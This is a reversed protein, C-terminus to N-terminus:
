VTHRRTKLSRAMTVIALLLLPLTGPASVPAFLRATSDFDASWAFFPTLGSFLESSGVDELLPLIRGLYYPNAAYVAQLISNQLEIASLDARMLGPLLLDHTWVGRGDEIRGYASKDESAAAFLAINSLKDLDGVDTPTEGWFGGSHCADILVLKRVGAWKPDAFITRLDDDTLHFSLSEDYVNSAADAREDSGAFLGNASGAHGMYYLVVTDGAQVQM